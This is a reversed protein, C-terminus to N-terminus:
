QRTIRVCAVANVQHETSRPAPAAPDRPKWGEPTRHFVSVEHAGGFAPYPDITRYGQFEQRPGTPVTWLLQGGIVLRGRLDDLIDWACHCATNRCFIHELVSVCVITDFGEGQLPWRRQFDADQIKPTERPDVGVVVGFQCLAQAFYSGAYGFDMINGGPRHHKGIQSLVWAYEIIRESRAIDALLPPNILRSVACTVSYPLAHKVWQRVSM